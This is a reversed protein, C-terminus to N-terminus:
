ITLYINFNIDLKGLLLILASKWARFEVTFNPIQDIRAYQLIRNDFINNKRSIKNIVNKKFDNNEEEGDFRQSIEYYIFLSNRHILIFILKIVIFLFFIIRSM